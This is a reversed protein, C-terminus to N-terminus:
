SEKVIEWELEEIWHNTELVAEVIYTRIVDDKEEQTHSATIENMVEEPIEVVEGQHHYLDYDPPLPDDSGGQTWDFELKTIRVKMKNIL